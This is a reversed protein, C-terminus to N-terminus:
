VGSVEDPAVGDWGPPTTPNSPFTAGDSTRTNGVRVMASDELQATGPSVVFVYEETMLNWFVSYFQLQVLGTKTQAPFSITRGDELTGTFALIEIQGNGPIVPFQPTRSNIFLAGRANFGGAAIEDREQATQGIAPTPPPSATRGLCFDHKGPTETMLEFTVKMTVPDIQRSLIICDSDLGLEPVEVHLCEGPRYHRLRPKCVLTIPSIERTDFLRYAALQAAQRANKVFNFPWVDRKEEGDETLFASNVVPGADVLEWNNDPSIYRPIITNLRDRYSPMTVLSMEDDTVLDNVTITDLAVKPAAYKFTLIGGPVPEAGGAYCIDKLNAWRDGPEFVVGFITWANAECVSAWAAVVNWDIGDAPMGIGFVRKGNQYRGYAYTGAHLAPNESWEYTSEDGLRHSGSGGPFTSDKRPDYVLVWQGYAALPDIGSAFRKGDKDFLFSWGIAALGSLKHAASWGPAGAWQPSLATSEPTEGLQTDTFLFGNYWSPIVEFNIRPNISQVRGLSYVVAMFRYPNPVKKITPGYATDHRLTGGVLGEGMAYPTPANPDILMRAVSGRAPPPKTLAQAGIAAAASVASAVAAVTALKVGAVAVVGLGSAVAAVVAVAGAIVGITRVAKAM